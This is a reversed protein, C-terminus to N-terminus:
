NSSSVIKNGRNMLMYDVSDVLALWSANLIDTSVGVTSWSTVGDTSEIIVRTTAATAEDGNLIRVKFDILRMECIEPYFRELAKRLAKDLANVPGEGEAATIESKGGVCIKIMASATYQEKEDPALSIVKFHELEFFPSYKGLEKQIMLEFSSEAGEFQYGQKELMKMKDLIIQTEPSNREINPDVKKISSIVTSRGSMESILMRRKNGVAEPNIHEFTKPNKYVADIHMGSKHSFAMNGVYPKREDPAINALEYIYRAFGKLKKINEDPICSVGRKLQLNPIITCLNANGCREGFGNVTGQILGCGANVAVVSNAVAMGTDNHCHIGLMAGGVVSKANEIIGCLEDPFVAGNTDCLTVIDAGAQAAADICSLAYGKNAKYGDFFHEADFIVEKGMSKFHKVTDYIIKLNTKLDTKLVEYVHLDWSKGFVTIVEAGTNELAKIGPDDNVSVGVKHTSGFAAIKANKLKLQRIEKFFEADKPNSTPTGAEIYSVGLEDLATLVKLRDESSFCIGEGQVGDRLTSDYIFVKNQM